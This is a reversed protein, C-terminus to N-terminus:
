RPTLMAFGGIAGRIHVFCSGIMKPMGSTTYDVKCLTVGLGLKGKVMQGWTVAIKKHFIKHGLYNYLFGQQGLLNLM